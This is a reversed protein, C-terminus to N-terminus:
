FVYSVTIRTHELELANSDSDNYDYYYSNSVSMSQSIEGSHMTYSFLFNQYLVQIGYMIGGESEYEPTSSGYYGYGGSSKMEFTPISYGLKGYISAGNQNAFNMLGYLSILSYEAPISKLDTKILYEVGFGGKKGPQLFDFGVTIPTKVDYEMTAYSQSFDVESNLDLGIKFGSSFCFTLLYVTFMLKM